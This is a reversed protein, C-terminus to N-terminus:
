VQQPALCQSVTKLSLGKGELTGIILPLAKLTHETPHMLIFDGNQIDKTARKLVLNSDKDRWDITDRTWMIVDLNLDQCARFMESGLSGSPPAFLRINIGTLEKVLKNTLMIEDTNQAYTLDKADKHSYGHCGIEHGKSVIKKLTDGNKAVWSGGVFFTAKASHTELVQLIPEIYETGWYVNFMLAVESRNTNGHYIATNGSAPTIYSVNLSVMAVVILVSAIIINVALNTKFHRNLM